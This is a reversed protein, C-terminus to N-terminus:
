IKQGWVSNFTAGASTGPAQTGSPGAAIQRITPVEQGQVNPGPNGNAGQDSAGKRAGKRGGKWGLLRLIYRALEGYLSGARDLLQLLASIFFHLAQANEDVLFSVRGFFEVVRHLGQLFVQWSHTHGEGPAVPPGPQMPGSAGYPGIGFGLSPQYPSGYGAYGGGFGGYTSGYGRQYGGYGGYAGGYGGYGTGYSGYAGGYFRNGYSGYANNSYSMYGNNNSSAGYSVPGALASSTPQSSAPLVSANTSSGSAPAEASSPTTDWPKRQGDGPLSPGLPTASRGSTSSTPNVEWPRLPGSDSM